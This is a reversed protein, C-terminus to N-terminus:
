NGEEITQLEERAAKLQEFLTNRKNIQKEKMCSKKLTEVELKLSALRKQKEIREDIDVAETNGFAVQSVISDWAVDLNAGGLTLSEIKNSVHLGHRYVASQGGKGFVFILQHANAKSIAELIQKPLESGKLEINLVMIEHVVKGDPINVTASKISNVVMIREVESVFQERTKKDLNLNRYFAEKPLRRNVETTSPLGLM